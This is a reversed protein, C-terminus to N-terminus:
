NLNEIKTNKWYQNFDREESTGHMYPDTPFPQVPQAPLTSNSFPNFGTGGGVVVNGGTPAVSASAFPNGTVHETAGYSAVNTHNIQMNM